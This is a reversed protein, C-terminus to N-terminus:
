SDPGSPKQSGVWYVFVGLMMICGLGLLALNWATSNFFSLFLAELGRSILVLVTVLAITAGIGMFLIVYVHASVEDIDKSGARRKIWDLRTRKLICMNNLLIYGLMISVGLGLLGYFNIKSLAKPNLGFINLINVTDYSLISPLSVLVVLWTFSGGGKNRLIVSQVGFLFLIGWIIEPLYPNIGPLHSTLPSQLLVYLNSNSFALSGCFAMLSILIWEIINIIFKTIKM